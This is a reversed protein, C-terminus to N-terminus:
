LWREVAAVGEEEFRYNERRKKMFNVQPLQLGRSTSCTPVFWTSIPPSVFGSDRNSTETDLDCVLHEVLHRGPMPGLVVGLMAQDRGGEDGLL